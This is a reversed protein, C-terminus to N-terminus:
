SVVQFVRFSCSDFNAVSFEVSYSNTSFEIGGRDPNCNINITRRWPLSAFLIVIQMGFIYKLLM